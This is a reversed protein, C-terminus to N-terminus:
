ESTITKTPPVIESPVVAPPQPLQLVKKSLRDNLWVRIQNDNRVGKFNADDLLDKLKERLQVVTKGTDDYLPQLDKIFTLLEVKKMKYIGTM